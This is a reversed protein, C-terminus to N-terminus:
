NVKSTKLYSDGEYVDRSLGFDSIKVVKAATLLINRAALDRHVVKMESLYEMGKATQWAFSLLDQDNVQFKCTEILLQENELADPYTMTKHYSDQDFGKTTHKHRILQLFSKLSGYECYEV